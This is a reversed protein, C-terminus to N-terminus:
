ISEKKYMTRGKLFVKISLFTLIAMLLISLILEGLSVSVLVGFYSGILFTPFVTKVLTYDIVTSNPKEPHPQRSSFFIFRISAALFVLSATIPIAEKTKFRYFGVLLPSLIIGGGIGGISAIALLFPIVAYGVAETAQIPFM